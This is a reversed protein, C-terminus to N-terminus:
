VYLPLLPSGVGTYFLSLRHLARTSAIYLLKKDEESKYNENNTQYVIVADFELGKSMYVPLISVGSSIDFGDTDILIAGIGRGISMQLDRADSISKCIIAISENGAKKCLEIEDVILEELHSDKDAKVIKPEDSYRDFSEIDVNEDIFNSSFKNIEYSCRFSKNMYVMSSKKKNLIDKIDNYISIDCNKQLTQNIDGVVTFKTDSFAQKLIEYQLPYYDQAEDVVVQKIDKYLYSGSIYLKLLLLVMGDEYSVQQNDLNEITYALIQDINSPLELGKALKFFLNKNKILKRYIGAVDIRTFKRIENYIAKNEKLLLLRAFAKVEFIHEPYNSTFKELKELRSKRMEQMKLMIRNEITNLRKELPIAVDNNKLLEQKLLQRNAICQGNYFIDRFEIMKYEYLNLYRQLITRFTRSLKFEVSSKKININNTDKGNIIEELLSNRSEISMSNEFTNEFIDEMTITQINKEGLEPLVNEIYKGFLNNPTILAINNVSLNSKVGHYMLFAVRHMAVSTKGSGAVGQVILLDSEIDRIIIDQEKQITEVISKMKASSNQSLVQRLINDLVTVSSDFFYVLQSNKIEYQRKLKVEGSILGYPATYSAKGLEYRYFISAIPSRWDCIYTEQTKEDTLNGLGIYIKEVSTGEEAFDIRAFYPSLIMKEYKRIRSDTIEYDFTQIRIPNLYQIADSLKEFDLSSHITNEYMDKRAAILENKKSLMKQYEKDLSDKIAKTVKSLYVKELEFQESYNNIFIM